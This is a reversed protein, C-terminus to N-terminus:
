KATATPGVPAATTTASQPHAPLWQKWFAIEAALRKEADATDLLESHGSNIRWARVRGDSTRLLNGHLDCVYARMFARSPTVDTEAERFLVAVDTSGDRDKGLLFSCAGRSVMTPSVRARHPWRPANDTTLGLVGFMYSDTTEDVGGQVIRVLDEFTVEEARAAAFLLACGCTALAFIVIARRM